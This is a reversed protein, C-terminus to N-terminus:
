SDEDPFIKAVMREIGDRAYNSPPYLRQAKLFWALSSGPQDQEELDWAKRITMVFESAGITLDARLKNIMTDEPFERYTEEAEEWAGIVDGRRAFEECRGITEQIQRINILVDTLQAKRNTDTAAAAIYRFQDEFIQRYNKEGLLRDLDLLAQQHQDTVSFMTAAADKLDPNLPWITMAGRLEKEMIPIAGSLAASRAKALHMNSATKATEILAMPEASDYDPAILALEDALTGALGFDRARMASQLKGLKQSYAFIRRKKERPLTRIEPMYEGFAYSQALRKAASAVETNDLLYTYAEVGEEVEGMIENSLADLTSVTPPMGTGKSFFERARSGEEIQLTTDGDTFLARYFGTAIQVHEFRRQFFLQVMLVQFEIKTQLQSLERKTKGEASMAALEAQRREFPALRSVIAPPDEKDMDKRMMDKTTMNRNWELRKWEEEIDKRAREMRRQDRRAVWVVYVANAIDDCLYEDTDYSSARPLLGFAASVSDPSVQTPSLHKLISRILKQYEKDAETTQEPENLYQEFREQFILQDFPNLSFKGFETFAAATQVFPHNTSILALSSILSNQTTSSPLPVIMNSQEASPAALQGPAQGAAPSIGIALAFIFHAKGLGNM